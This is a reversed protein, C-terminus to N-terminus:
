DSMAHFCNIMGAIMHRSQRLVRFNFNMWSRHTKRRVVIPINHSAVRMKHEICFAGLRAIEDGTTTDRNVNM